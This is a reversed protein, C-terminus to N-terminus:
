LERWRPTIVISTAGVASIANAGSDLYPFDSKLKNGENVTGRYAIKLESDIDIYDVIGEIITQRGNIILTVDGDGNIRILPESKYAPNTVTDPPTITIDSTDLWFFPAIRFTVKLTSITRERNVFEHETDIVRARYYGGTEVELNGAGNFLAFVTPLTYQDTILFVMEREYGIYEDNDIFYEVSTNPILGYEDYIKKTKQRTGYSLITLGPDTGKFKM